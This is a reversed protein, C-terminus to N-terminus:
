NAKVLSILSDLPLEVLQNETMRRYTVLHRILKVRLGPVDMHVPLHKKITIQKSSSHWKLWLFKHEFRKKELVLDMVCAESDFTSSNSIDDPEIFVVPIDYLDVYGDDNMVVVFPPKM